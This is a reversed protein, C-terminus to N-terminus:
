PSTNNTAVSELNPSTRLQLSFTVLVRSDKGKWVSDDTM